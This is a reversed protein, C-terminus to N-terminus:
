LIELLIFPLKSLYGLLSLILFASGGAIGLIGLIVAVKETRNMDHGEHM